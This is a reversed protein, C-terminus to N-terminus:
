VSQISLFPSIGALNDGYFDLYQFSFSNICFPRIGAFNDGCFDLNKFSLSNM